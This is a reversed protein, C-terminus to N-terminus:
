DNVCYLMGVTVDDGSGAQTSDLLWGGLNKEVSSLGDQKIMRLLDSGVKLFGSDDRFSNPYGDTALLILAPRSHSLPQFNVRFDRWAEPACLSTTENAFLRDDGPLPRSVEGNEDVTLIDGDGLQLYIVFKATVGVAIITAGYAISIEDSNDSQSLPHATVHEAVAKQWNRVLTGPLWDHALHKVLSLNDENAHTVLFEHILEASKEVALQAGIHSRSYRVSGHGDAVAVVLLPTCGSEPLWRIADQNPRGSREHIAGRVSQGIAQWQPTQKKTRM